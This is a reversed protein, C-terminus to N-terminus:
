GSLPLGSTEQLSTGLLSGFFAAAEAVFKKKEGIIM